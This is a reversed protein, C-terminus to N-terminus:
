IKLKKANNLKSLLCVTEVHLTNPFMDFIQTSQLNYNLKEFIAIDRALTSPDCSVYVIRKPDLKTITEIGNTTLGKRPPDVVVVDIHKYINLINNIAVSADECIFEANTINNISANIKANEIAKSVIEVGIVKKAQKALFLSITGTGCYLDVVIDNKSINSYELVKNYLSSVLFANIQFFSKSSIQFKLDDIQDVIYDRGHVLIEQEGLITNNTSTNLNLIISTPNFKNILQEKLININNSNLDNVILVIMIENFSISQKILVHRLVKDLNLVQTKNYIFHYIDNCVTTQLQCDNFPIIDNTKKRYFGMLNNACPIQVKNRYRYINSTTNVNTITIDKNAFQKFCDIVRQKKIQLQHNYDIYQYDCGGCKNAIDCIPTIRYNSPKIINQIKGFIVKNTVKLILVNCVEDQLMNKVLVLKDNYYCRGYGDYTSQICNLEIIDNKKLM